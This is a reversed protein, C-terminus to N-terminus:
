KGAADTAESLKVVDPLKDVARRLDDTGIHTYSRSVASSAHGIIERAVAESAGTAKLLSTATHRLSHFSLESAERKGKRGQKKAENTRKTALGTQVLLRHFQNSLNGVPKIASLKPFLPADPNDPADIGTLYEALPGAIPILTRRNTKGATFALENRELDVSRWTLAAVDGLRQGTYFGFLVLGHWETDKSQRLIRAVESPSFPRRKAEGVKLSPKLQNVGVLPSADIIGRRIADTYCSRIVKMAINATAVSLTQAFADRVKVFDEATLVDMAEEARVGLIGLTRTLISSYRDFSATRLEHKKSEMWTECWESFAPAINVSDTLDAVERLIARTRASAVKGERAQRALADWKLCVAMAKSKDSFGTSRQIRRGNPLTFACSWIRSDPRRVLSPM